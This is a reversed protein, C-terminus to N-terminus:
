RNHEENGQDRRTSQRRMPQCSRVAREATSYSAYCTRAASLRDVKNNRIQCVCVANTGRTRNLASMFFEFEIAIGTLAHTRHEIGYASTRWNEIRHERAYSLVVRQQEVSFAGYLNSINSETGRQRREHQCQAQGEVTKSQNCCCIDDSPSQMVDVVVVVFVFRDITILPQAGNPQAHRAFEVHACGACQQRPV